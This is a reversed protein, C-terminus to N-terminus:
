SIKNFDKKFNNFNQYKLNSLQEENKRLINPKFNSIYTDIYLFTLIVEGIVNILLHLQKFHSIDIDYFLIIRSSIYLFISACYIWKRLNLNNMLEISKYNIFSHLFGTTNSFVKISLIMLYYSKYATICFVILLSLYTSLDPILISNLITYTVIYVIFIPIGILLLRYLYMLILLPLGVLFDLLKLIKINSKSYKKQLMSNFIYLLFYIAIIIFGNM